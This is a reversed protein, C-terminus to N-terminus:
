KSNDASSVAEPSNKYGVRVAVATVVEGPRTKLPGTYLKWHKKDPGNVRYALSAGKTASTIVLGDATTKFTPTAVVPQQRNPWFRELCEAESLTWLENHTKDWDSYAQRLRAIDKQYAPDNILNTLEHPDKSVEFFEEVARPAQFWQEQAPNLKGQEHLAWMRQMMPIQLRYGVPLYGPKEPQYNRIYRFRRDRVYGQKDIQEDMRNRGGFVYARAATQYKGLFAKGHLYSPPKLGALSLLTAPIDVFSCLRNEVQGRRFGDPLRVMFPVLTGSERLERKQRPLPGGNDSYFVIITNDLLGATKLEDILRQVQKDMEHINSYLVAVDRRVTSDDPFYPPLPVKDPDIVLPERNRRWIQSEHTVELNFISLFPQGDARNKWHATTGNEDWATLPPAFQYDTKANNTCFYGAARFYETYCKVGEPLVVEYHQIGPPFYNAPANPAFNRMQNAGIATPYLGTILAARSPACVGVPTFMRTFRISETALRDLNPTNAVPDGYCGLYPSIDETVICLINVPKQSFGSTTILGLFLLTLSVKWFRFM